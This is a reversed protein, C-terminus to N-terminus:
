LGTARQGEREALTNSCRLAFLETYANMSSPCVALNPTPINKNVKREMGVEVVATSSTSSYM